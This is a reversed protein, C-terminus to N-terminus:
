DLSMEFKCSYPVARTVVAAEGKLGPKWRSSTLAKRCAEDAEPDLSGVVEIATVKGTEDITLLLEVRGQLKKEKVAPPVDLVPKYRIKPPTTVAAYPVIVTETAEDLTMRDDTARTATTNGARVSIGSGDGPLFSQNNLGQVTRPTPKATPPQRK